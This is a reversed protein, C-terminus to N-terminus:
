AEFLVCINIMFVSIIVGSGYLGTKHNSYCSDSHYYVGDYDIHIYILPKIQFLNTVVDRYFAISSLHLNMYM